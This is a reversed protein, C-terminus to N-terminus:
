EHMMIMSEIVPHKAALQGALALLIVYWKESVRVHREAAAESWRKLRRM